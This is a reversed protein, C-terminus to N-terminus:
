KPQQLSEKPMQPTAQQDIKVMLGFLGFKAPTEGLATLINQVDNPELELKIITNQKEM